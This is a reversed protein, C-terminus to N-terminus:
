LPRRIDDAHALQYREFALEAKDPDFNLQEALKILEQRDSEDLQGRGAFRRVMYQEIFFLQGAELLQDAREPEIGLGRAFFELRDDESPDFDHDAMAIASALMYLTDREPNERASQLDAQSVFGREASRNTAIEERDVFDLLVEREASHVSGDASAVDLLMRVLLERMEASEIPALKLQRQLEASVGQAEHTLLWRQNKADWAFLHMVRQFAFNVADGYKELPLDGAELYAAASAEQQARRTEAQDIRADVAVAAADVAANYGLLQRILQNASRVVNFVFPKESALSLADNGPRLMAAPVVSYVEEDSNESQFIVHFGNEDLSTGKVLAQISAYSGLEKSMEEPM